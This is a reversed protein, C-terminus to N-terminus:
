ACALHRRSVPRHLRAIRRVASTRSFLTPLPTVIVVRVILNLAPIINPLTMAADKPFAGFASAIGINELFNPTWHLKQWVVIGRSFSTPYLNRAAPNRSADFMSFAPKAEDTPVYRQFPTENRGEYWSVIRSAWDPHVM